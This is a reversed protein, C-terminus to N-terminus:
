KGEMPLEEEIEDMMVLVDSYFPRARFSSLHTTRRKNEIRRRLETWRKTSKKLDDLVFKIADLTNQFAGTIPHVMEQDENKRM